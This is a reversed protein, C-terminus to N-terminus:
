QAVPDPPWDHLQRALLDDVSRQVEPANAGVGQLRVVQRGRLYHAGYGTITANPQKAVFHWRSLSGSRKTITYGTNLYTTNIKRLTASPEIGDRITFVWVALTVTGSSTGIETVQAVGAEALMRMEAPPYNNGVLFAEPDGTVNITMSGPPRVTPTAPMEQYPRRPATDPWTIRQAVAAPDSGDGWFLFAGAAITVLTALTLVVRWRGTGPRSPGPGNDYM